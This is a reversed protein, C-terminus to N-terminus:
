SNKKPDILKFEDACKMAWSAPLSKFHNMDYKLRPKNTMDAENDPYLIFHSCYALSGDQDAHFPARDQPISEPDPERNLIIGGGTKLIESLQVKGPLKSKEFNEKAFCQLYFHCGEFLRPSQKMSNLRAATSKFEYEEEDIFNGAELSKDFWEKTLIWAGMLLAKYFVVKAKASVEAKPLIFHTISDTFAHTIKSDASIKKLDEKLKTINKEVKVFFLVKKKNAYNTISTELVETDTVESETERIIKRTEDNAALELATQGDKNLTEKKAGHKILLQAVLVAGSEAADHLATTRDISAANPNAGSRLLLGAASDNAKQAVEHLPTWGAYDKCNPDAGRSLLDEIEDNHGKICAVQLPTEGRANQKNVKLISSRRKEATNKDNSKKQSQTKLIEDVDSFRVSSNRKQKKNNEDEKAPESKKEEPQKNTKRKSLKGKSKKGDNPIDNNLNETERKKDATAKKKTTEKKVENKTSKLLGEKNEDQQKKPKKQPIVESESNDMKKAKRKSSPKVKPLQKAEDENKVAEIEEDDFKGGDNEDKLRNAIKKKNSKKNSEEEEKKKRPKAATKRTTTIIFDDMSNDEAKQEKKPALKRNKLKGADGHDQNVKVEDLDMVEMTQWMESGDDEKPPPDLTIKLSKAM